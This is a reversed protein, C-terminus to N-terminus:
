NALFDLEGPTFHGVLGCVNAFIHAHEGCAAGDCVTPIEKQKPRQDIPQNAEKRQGNPQTEENYSYEGSYHSEDEYLTANIRQLSRLQGWL